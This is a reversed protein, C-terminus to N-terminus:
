EAASVRQEDVADLQQLCLRAGSKGDEQQARQGEAGSRAVQNEVISVRDFRVNLM